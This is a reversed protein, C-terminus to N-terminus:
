ANVWSHSIRRREIPVSLRLTTGIRLKSDIEIAGGVSGARRKMSALGNGDSAREVDFGVGDDVVLMELNGGALSVDVSVSRCRSHRAVNNLAEKFIMFIERRKDAAIARSNDADPGRIEFAINNTSLIEGAVRRMRQTLDGIHDKNPNVAWVIDSMSDVTARSTNAILSFSAASQGDADSVKRSAVDSAMAILSLNAGIDDHLDTAIRMRIRQLELLRAVRYNYLGYGIAALCMMAMSIFWWSRWVPPLVQFEFSAPEGNGIGAETVARVLFTYKGPALRAFTVSHDAFPRSWDSDAGLLRYQYRLDDEAKFQPAVFEIALNNRSSSLELKPIMTAGREPLSLDEGAITVRSLYVATPTHATEPARPSIKSVGDSTAVWINGGSDRIVRFIRNGALGEKTTFSRWEGTTPNFRDLGRSTGFYMQGFTDETISAVFDSSLTQGASIQQFEPREVSPTKTFSVGAGRNSIWFWGRSDLYFSLPDVKPLGEMAVFRSFNGRWLRGLREVGAIWLGGGQDAVMLPHGGSRSMVFDAGFVQRTSANLTASDIRNISKDDFDYWLGGANDEYVCVSMGNPVGPLKAVNIDRGNRLHIIPATMSFSATPPLLVDWGSGAELPTFLATSGALPLPTLEQHRHVARDALEVLEDGPSYTYDAFIQGSLSEVVGSALPHPLGMEQTYSAISEGGLRYVGGGETAIWLNGDRDRYLGDIFDVSLGEAPGYTHRSGSYEHILGAATGLWIDGSPERMAAKVYFNPAPASIKRWRDAQNGETGPSFEYIGKATAVFLRSSDEHSIAFIENSAYGRNPGDEISVRQLIGGAGNIEIMESGSGFWLNGNGDEAAGHCEHESSLILQFNPVGKVFTARYIGRDTSSWLTGRSDFLIQNVRNSERSSDIPFMSFLKSPPQDQGEVNASFTKADNLLAIGGGNTAVWLRGGGDEAIFNIVTNSIGSRSGYNVFRDGDFRSLGDSTGFWLYRKSDQFITRVNGNVLGDSIDFHRLSLKQAVAPSLSVLQSLVCALILKSVRSRSVQRFYGCSDALSKFLFFGM